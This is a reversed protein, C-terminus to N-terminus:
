KDHNQIHDLKEKLEQMGRHLRVSIVNETQNLMHAIDKPGYGEIYRLIIVEKHIDKLDMIVRKVKELTYTADIVIDQPDIFASDDFQMGDDSLQDLSDVKAKRYYDIILNRATQYLFARIDKIENGQIGYKWTRMFVEQVLDHAVDRDSVRYYCFRFIPDAYEDYASLFDHKYQKYQDMYM